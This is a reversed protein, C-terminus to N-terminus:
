AEAARQSSEGTLGPLPTGTEKVGALAPHDEAQSLVLSNVIAENGCRKGLAEPTNFAFGAQSQRFGVRSQSQLLAGFAKVTTSFGDNRLFSVPLTKM